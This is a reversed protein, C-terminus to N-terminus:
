VEFKTRQDPSFDALRRCYDDFMADMRRALDEALAGELDTHMVYHRTQLVRLDARAQRPMAALPLLVTVAIMLLRSTRRMPTTGARTGWNTSRGATVIMTWSKGGSLM